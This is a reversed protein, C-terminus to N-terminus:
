EKHNQKPIQYYNKKTEIQQITNSGITGLIEPAMYLITGGPLCQKIYSLGSDIIFFSIKNTILINFLLTKLNSIV